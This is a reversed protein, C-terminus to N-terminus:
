QLKLFYKLIYYLLETDIKNYQIIDKTTNFTLLDDNKKNLLCDSKIISCMADLGNKCETNYDIQLLQKAVVKLSYSEMQISSKVLKLLDIYEVHAECHTKYFTNLVPHRKLTKEIISKDANSWHIIYVKNLQKM